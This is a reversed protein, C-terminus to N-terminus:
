VSAEGDEFISAAWDALINTDMDSYLTVVWFVTVQIKIIVFVGLRVNCVSNIENSNM